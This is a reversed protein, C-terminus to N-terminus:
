IPTSPLTLSRHILILVLVVTPPDNWFMASNQEYNELYM